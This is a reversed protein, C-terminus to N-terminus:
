VFVTRQIRFELFLAFCNSGGAYTVTQGRSSSGSRLRPLWLSARGPRGAQVPWVPPESERVKRGLGHARRAMHSSKRCAGRCDFQEAECVYSEAVRPRLVLVFPRWPFYGSSASLRLKGTGGPAFRVPSLSWVALSDRAQWSSPVPSMKGKSLGVPEIM